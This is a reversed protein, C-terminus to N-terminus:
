KVTITVTGLTDITKNRERYEAIYIGAQIYTHTLTHMRLCADTNPKAEACSPRSTEGDGFDIWHDGMGIFGPTFTVTLPSPGYTLDATLVDSWDASQASSVPQTVGMSKLLNKTTENYPIEGEPEGGKRVCEDSSRAPELVHKEMHFKNVILLNGFWLIGGIGGVVLLSILAKSVLNNSGFPFRKKGNYHLIAALLLLGLVGSFYVGGGGLLDYGGRGSFESIIMATYFFVPVPTFFTPTFYAVYLLLGTVHMVLRSTIFPVFRTIIWVLFLIPLVYELGIIFVNGIGLLSEAVASYPVSCWVPINMDM